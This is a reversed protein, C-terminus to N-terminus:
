RSKKEWYVELDEADIAFEINCCITTSCGVGTVHLSRTLKDFAPHNMDCCDPTCAGPDPMMAPEGSKSVHVCVCNIAFVIPTPWELTIKNEAVSITAGGLSSSLSSSDIDNAFHFTMTTFTFLRTLIQVSRGLPNQEAKSKIEERFPVNNRLSELLTKWPITKAQIGGMTVALLNADKCALDLAMNLVPTLEFPIHKVFQNREADPINFGDFAVTLDDFDVSEAEIDATSQHPAHVTCDGDKEHPILLSLPPAPSSSEILVAYDLQQYVQTAFCRPLVSGHRLAVRPAQARGGFLSLVRSFM